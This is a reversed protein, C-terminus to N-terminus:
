IKIEEKPELHELLMEVISDSTIPSNWSGYNETTIM